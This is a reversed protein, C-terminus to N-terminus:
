TFYILVCNLFEFAKCNTMRCLSKRIIIVQIPHVLGQQLVLQIVRVAARRVKLDNHLFAELIQKLYIQVITSAMGSTVDGMEKINELKANKTWEADQRIMRLEEETLYLQINCLAQVKLRIEADSTLLRQYVAKLENGLMFDYHRVCLNGIAQLALYQLDPCPRDLLFLLEM